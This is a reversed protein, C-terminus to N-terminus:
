GSVVQLQPTVGGQRGEQQTFEQTCLTQFELFRIGFERGHQGSSPCLLCSSDPCLPCPILDWLFCEERERSVLIFSNRWEWGSQYKVLARGRGLYSTFAPRLSLPGVCVCERPEAFWTPFLHAYAVVDGPLRPDYTGPITQKSFCPQWLNFETYCRSPLLFCSITHFEAECKWQTIHWCFCYIKRSFIHIIFTLM